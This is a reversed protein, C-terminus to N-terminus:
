MLFMIGKFQNIFNSPKGKGSYMSRVKFVTVAEKISRLGDQFFREITEYM